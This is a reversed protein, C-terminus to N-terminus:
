KACLFDDSTPGRERDSQARLVLRVHVFRRVHRYAPGGVQHMGVRVHLHGRLGAGRVAESQDQLEQVPRHRLRRAAPSSHVFRGGRDIGDAVEAEM